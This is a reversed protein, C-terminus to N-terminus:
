KLKIYLTGKKALKASIFSNTNEFDTKEGDLYLCAIDKECYFLLEGSSSMDVIYGDPTNMVSKIAAGGNMKDALGIVAFGDNIKAFTVIDYEKAKLTVDLSENESLVRKDGTKFSYLAYEGSEFGDVDEPRVKVTKSEEDFKPAFIGVVGCFKNRNFIKFLNKSDKIDDFLCDVTPMAIDRARLIKGEDDTLMKILEFNHEDVKDSVYIPGGSIARAAAHYEGYEHMTQFMDWDCYTFQGMWISNLANTYIHQVHSDEILPYFDDSSRMLNTRKSFYINDNSCSMCNIMEGDFNYAVSAEMGSRIKKVTKVRGGRGAGHGEIASQVDIKVGDVGENKLYTHYDNYFDFAKDSDVIGYPFHESNWREPNNEKIGDTHVASSLQPRYKQMEHANTDVGGWYGMVAHWVFFKKVGYDNKAMQVTESLCNNFKENAKFSSLKWFGRDGEETVTQWGDDLILLKPVFGGKKFSDLGTKVDNSTVKEYFSDWTCWGFYDMFEPDKKDKKHIVDDFKESLSLGANKILEYFDNGSIKYFAYFEDGVTADDGTIANVCIKNDAGFLSTRFIGEVISFYVSYNGDIHKIGLWQSEKPIDGVNKGAKGTMFFPHNRYSCCFAEFDKVEEIDVDFSAKKEPTKVLYYEGGYNDKEKIITPVGKLM